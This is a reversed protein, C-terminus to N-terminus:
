SCNGRAGTKKSLEVIECPSKQLKVMGAEIKYIDLLNDVLRTMRNVTDRCVSLRNKAADSAQGNLDELLLDVNGGLVMFPSRLEHSVTAIFSSKLNSCNKAKTAHNILKLLVDKIIQYGILLGGLAILLSIILILGVDGVVIQITSIRTAILYLSVLLPIITMLAFAVNFKRFPNEEFEQLILAVEKTTNEVKAEM